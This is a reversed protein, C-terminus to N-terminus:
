ARISRHSTQPPRKENKRLDHMNRDNRQFNNISDNKQSKFIIITVAIIVCCIFFIIANIRLRKEAKDYKEEIQQLERRYEEYPTMLKLKNFTM